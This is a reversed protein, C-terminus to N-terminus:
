GRDGRHHNQGDPEEGLDIANDGDEGTRGETLLITGEILGEIGAVEDIIVADDDIEAGNDFNWYAM